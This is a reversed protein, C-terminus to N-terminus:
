QDAAGRREKFRAVRAPLTFMYTLFTEVFHAADAADEASIDELEHIENGVVRITEAWEMM